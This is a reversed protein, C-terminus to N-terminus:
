SSDPVDTVVAKFISPRSDLDGIQSALQAVQAKQFHQSEPKGGVEPHRRHARTNSVSSKPLWSDRMPVSLNPEHFVPKQFYLDAVLVLLENVSLRAGGPSTIKLAKGRTFAPSVAERDRSLPLNQGSAPLLLSTDGLLSCTFHM